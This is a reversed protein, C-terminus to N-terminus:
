TESSGEQMGCYQQWVLRFTESFEGAQKKLRFNVTGSDLWDGAEMESYNLTLAQNTNLRYIWSFEMGTAFCADVKFLRQPPLSLQIGIEEEAERMCCQDYSEGYDVHGAVSSDWLGPNSDKHLGRKQLFLFGQLNFVLLHIARHRLGLRHIEDRRQAGIVRDFEDVVSLEESNENKRIDTMVSLGSLMPPM